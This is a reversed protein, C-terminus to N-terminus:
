VRLGEVGLSRFGLYYNENEQGNVADLGLANHYNGNERGDVRM